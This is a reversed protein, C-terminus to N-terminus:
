TWGWEIFKPQICCCSHIEFAKLCIASALILLCCQNSMRSFAFTYCFVDNNATPQPLLLLQRVLQIPFKPPFKFQLQWFEYFQISFLIFTVMHLNCRLLSSGAGWIPICTYSSPLRIYILFDASLQEFQNILFLM